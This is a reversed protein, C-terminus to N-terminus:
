AQRARGAATQVARRALGRTVQLRYEGSAHIDDLPVLGETAQAAAEAIAADGLDSGRL